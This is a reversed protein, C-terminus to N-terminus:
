NPTKDSASLTDVIKLYSSVTERELIRDATELFRKIEELAEVPKNQQWLANFLGTSANSDGPQMLVIQEFIIAAEAFKETCFYSGGIMFLAALHHPEERLVELLIKQAEAEKAESSLTKAQQLKEEINIM